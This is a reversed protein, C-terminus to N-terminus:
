NESLAPQALYWLSGSYNTVTNYTIWPASIKKNTLLFFSAISVVLNCKCSWTTQRCAACAQRLHQVSIPLMWVHHLVTQRQLNLGPAHTNMYTHTHTCPHVQTTFTQQTQAYAHGHINSQLEYAHMQSAHVSFTFRFCSLWHLRGHM